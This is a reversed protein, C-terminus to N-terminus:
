IMNQLHLWADHLKEVAGAIVATDSALQKLREFLTTAVIDSPNKSVAQDSIAQVVEVMQQRLQADLVADNVIADTLDKLRAGFEEAETGKSITIAADIRALHGTNVVGVNSNAIHINNYTRSRSAARAIDTVPIRGRMPGIPMYADMDDQVQNLMAASQLWKRFHIDEIIAWCTLCVPLGNDVQYLAPRSCQVCKM